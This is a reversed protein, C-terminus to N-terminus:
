SSCFQVSCSSGAPRVVTVAVTVTVAKPGATIILLKLLIELQSPGVARAARPGATICLM